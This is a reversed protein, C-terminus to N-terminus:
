RIKIEKEEKIDVNRDDTGTKKKDRKTVSIRIEEPIQSGNAELIQSSVFSFFFSANKM